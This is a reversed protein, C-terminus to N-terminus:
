SRCRPRQPELTGGRRITTAQLSVDLASTERHTKREIEPSRSEWQGAHLHVAAKPHLWTLMQPLPM